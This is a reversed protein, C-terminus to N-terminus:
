ALRSKLHEAWTNAMVLEDGLTDLKDSRYFDFDVHRQDRRYELRIGAREIVATTSSGNTVTRQERIVHVNRLDQLSVDHMVSGQDTERCFYIRGQAEDLGCAFNRGFAIMSIQSQYKSAMSQLVNKLQAEHVRRKRNILYIPIACCALLALGTLLTGTEM